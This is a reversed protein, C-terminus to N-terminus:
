NYNPNEPSNAWILYKGGMTKLKEKWTTADNEKFINWENDCIIWSKAEVESDLQCPHWGSYGLFFKIKHPPINGKILERELTDFNGGWYIGHAVEISNPLIDPLTHLFYINNQEVPGGNYLPFDRKIGPILDSLKYVTIKNLIFGLSGNQSNHEVLFIVARSFSTDGTLAVEAILLNGKKPELM